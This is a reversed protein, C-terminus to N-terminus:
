MDINESVEEVLFFRRCAAKATKMSRQPESKIQILHGAPLTVAGSASSKVMYRPSRLHRCSSSISVIKTKVSLTADAQM